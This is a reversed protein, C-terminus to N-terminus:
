SLAPHLLLAGAGHPRVRATWGCSRPWSLMQYRCIPWSPKGQQEGWGAWTQTGLTGAKKAAAQDRGVRRGTGEQETRITEMAVPPTLYLIRKGPPVSAFGLPAANTPQEPTDAPEMESAGKSGAPTSSM